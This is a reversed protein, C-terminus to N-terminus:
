CKVSIFLKFTPDSDRGGGEKVVRDALVGNIGSLLNNIEISIVSILVFIKYKDM